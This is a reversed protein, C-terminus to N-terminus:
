HEPPLHLDYSSQLRFALCQSEWVTVALMQVKSGLVLEVVKSGVSSHGNPNWVVRNKRVLCLILEYENVEIM